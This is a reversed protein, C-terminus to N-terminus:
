ELKWVAIVVKERRPVMQYLFGSTLRFEDEPFFLHNEVPPHLSATWTGTSDYIRLYRYVTIPAQDTSAELLVVAKNAVSGLHQVGVLFLSDSDFRILLPQGGPGPVSASRRDRLRAPNKQPIRGTLAADTTLEPPGLPKSFYFAESGTRQVVVEGVRDTARVRLPSFGLSRANLFAGQQDYFVLRQQLPDCIVLGGAPLVDFSAPGEPLEDESGATVALMEPHRRLSDAAGAVGIDQVPIEITRQLPLVTAIKADDRCSFCAALCILGFPILHQFKM